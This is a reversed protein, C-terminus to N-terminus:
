SVPPRRFARIDAGRPHLVFAIVVGGAFGCAHAPWSVDSNLSPALGFLITGFFFLVAIAVLIWKLKRSFLARALLYALWGFVLASAGVIVQHAPGVLWTLLGGVVVIAATVISWVRLGSLMVVWGILIVPLTNSALHGYSAHLFPMTLVGWLGGATRPVLGFRDLRYHDAANVVGVLWLVATFAAMLILAGSWSRPDLPPESTRAEQGQSIRRQRAPPRPHPSPRRAPSSV